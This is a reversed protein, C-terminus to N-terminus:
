PYPLLRVQTSEMYLFASVVVECMGISKDHNSCSGSARFALLIPRVVRCSCIPRSLNSSLILENHAFRKLWVLSCARVSASSNSDGIQHKSSVRRPGVLGRAWFGTGSNSDPCESKCLRHMFWGHEVPVIGSTPISGVRQSSLCTRLVRANELKSSRSALVVVPLRMVRRASDGVGKNNAADTTSTGVTSEVKCANESM